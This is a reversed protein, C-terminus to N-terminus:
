QDDTGSALVPMTIGIGEGGFTDTAFCQSHWSQKSGLYQHRFSNLRLHSCKHCSSYPAKM